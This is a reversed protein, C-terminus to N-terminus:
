KRIVKISLDVEEYDKISTLNEYSTMTYTYDTLKIIANNVTMYLGYGQSNGHVIVRGYFAIGVPPVGKYTPREIKIEDEIKIM